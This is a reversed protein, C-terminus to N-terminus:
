PIWGPPLPSRAVLSLAGSRDRRMRYATGPVIVAVYGPTEILRAEPVDGFDLSAVATRGWRGAQPRLAVVTRETLGYFGGDRSPFLAYIPPQITAAGLRRLGSRGIRYLEVDATGRAVAAVSGCVAV